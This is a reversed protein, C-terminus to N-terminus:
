RESVGGFLFVLLYLVAGGGALAGAVGLVWLLQSSPALYRVAVLVVLSGLAVAGVGISLSDAVQGTLSRRELYRAYRSSGFATGRLNALPLVAAVGAVTDYPIPIGAMRLGEEALVLIVALALIARRSLRGVAAPADDPGDPPPPTM